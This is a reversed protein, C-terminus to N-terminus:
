FSYESDSLQLSRLALEVTTLTFIAFYTKQTLLVGVVFRDLEKGSRLTLFPRIKKILFVLESGKNPPFLLRTYHGTRIESTSFGTPIQAALESLEETRNEQNLGICTEINELVSERSLLEEWLM